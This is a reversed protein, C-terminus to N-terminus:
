ITHCRMKSDPYSTIIHRNKQSVITMIWFTAIVENGPDSKIEMPSSFCTKGDGEDTTVAPAKLSSGMAFDALDGYDDNDIAIANEWQSKHASKIHRWGYAANGCRLTTKGKDYSNGASNPYAKLVWTESVRSPDCYDNGYAGVSQTSVIEGPRYTDGTQLAVVTYGTGTGAAQAVPSQSLNLGGGLVVSAALMALWKYNKKKLM